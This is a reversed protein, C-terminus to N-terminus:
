GREARRGTSGKQGPAIVMRHAEPDDTFTRGPVRPIIGQHRGVLDSHGGHQLLVTVRCGPEALVVVRGGELEAFRTREALPRGAHTKVVKVTEHTAFGVLPRGIEKLVVLLDKRKDALGAPIQRGCHRIFRDAIQALDIGCGRTLREKHMVRRAAGMRRVLRRLFPDVPDPRHMKEILPPVRQPIRDIRVLLAKAHDRLVGKQRGPGLVQRVPLRETCLLPLEVDPLRFDKCGIGGIGVM